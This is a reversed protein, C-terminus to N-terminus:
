AEGIQRTIQFGIGSGGGTVLAVKGRLCDTRFPSQLASSSMTCRPLWYFAFEIALPGTWSSSSVLHPYGDLASEQGSGGVLSRDLM